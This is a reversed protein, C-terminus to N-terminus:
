RTKKQKERYQLYYFAAILMVGNNYDGSGLNQLVDSCPVTIMDIQENEDFHCTGTNELGEALYFYGTNTMFAPNTNVEGLKTLKRCKLGTEEELERVVAEEPSEGDEILGGPFEITVCNGGHRYQREMVFRETGTSDTFLPIVNVWPPSDIEVFDGTRGDNSTRHVTNVNFIPTKAVLSRNETKWILSEKSKCNDPTGFMNENVDKM